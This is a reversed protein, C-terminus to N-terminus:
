KTTKCSITSKRNEMSVIMNGLQREYLQASVADCFGRIYDPDQEDMNDMVENFLALRFRYKEKKEADTESYVADGGKVFTLNNKNRYYEIAYFTGVVTFVLVVTLILLDKKLLKNM